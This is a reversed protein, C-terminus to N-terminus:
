RPTGTWGHSYRDKAAGEVGYVVAVEPDGVLDGVAETEAGGWLRSSFIVLAGARRSIVLSAVTSLGAKSAESMSILRSPLDKVTSVSLSSLFSLPSPREMSRIMPLSEKLSIVVQHSYSSSMLSAPNM